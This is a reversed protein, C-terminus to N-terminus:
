AGGFGGCSPVGLGCHRRCERARRTPDFGRCMPGCRPHWADFRRCAVETDAASQATRLVLPNILLVDDGDDVGQLDGIQEQGGSSWATYHFFAQPLELFEESGDFVFKQVTQAPYWTLLVTEGPRAFEAAKGGIVTCAVPACVKIGPMASAECDLCTRAMAMNFRFAHAAADFAEKLDAEANAKTRQEPRM